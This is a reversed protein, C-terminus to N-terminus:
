IFLESIHDTTLGRRHLFAVVDKRFIRYRAGNGSGGINLAPLKHNRIWREVTDDHVGLWRALVGPTIHKSRKKAAATTM